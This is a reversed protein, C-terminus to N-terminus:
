EALVVIKVLSANTSPPPFTMTSGNFNASGFVLVVYGGGTKNFNVSAQPFYILGTYSANTVKNFNPASSNTSYFLVGNDNGSTPASLTLTAKNFDATGNATFYITVGSGTITAGSGNFAGNIVYLGANLTVTGTASSVDLTSYCGPNITPNSAKGVNLSTCSTTSPTNAALYACGSIDHCPDDAPIAPAPTAQPFTAGNTNPAGANIGYGIPSATITAGNMNASGNLIMSCGSANITQNNMNTQASSDLMYLCNNNNTTLRAVARATVKGSVIGPLVNAFFTPHTSTVLVEVATSDSTYAGSSPPNNVAISVGNTGDTFGNTASDAKAAAAYDSGPYSHEAAGALAASDAATQQLRQEYRLYGIDLALAAAGFLVVLQLAVIPLVQGRQQMRRTM